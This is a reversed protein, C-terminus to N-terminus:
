ARVFRSVVEIHPTHPFLDVLTCADLRYGAAALLGTDRGLAAPDCSVLVLLPTGTAAVAAVGERGLGSRAPDAVVVDAPMPRWGELSARIVKAHPLDTLNYRADVVAPRHREVGVISWPGVDLADLGAALAGSFLGVGCCLDVMTRHASGGDVSKRPTADLVAAADRIQRGVEEVLAVAGDARTQFFSSASIRWRRGLLEEHLWAHRGRRLEDTGVVLVDAPVAVGRGRPDAVVLREGTGAGARLTVERCGDFRGTTVLEALLPHAVLCSDVEVPDHSHARRFAAQGDVTSLRLTTRYGEAALDPGPAVDVDSTGGLRSLSDAVLQQKLSRQTAVDLHQWGCGGCGRAVHPCPPTVRGPAAELVDLVRGRAYTKREDTVDVRVREGPLAGAVFVVRGDAQRAVAEGGVAMSTCELEVIAV